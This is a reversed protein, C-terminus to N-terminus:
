EADKKPLGMFIRWEAEHEKLSKKAEEETEFYIGYGAAGTLRWDTKFEHNHASYILYNKYQTGDFWDPEFGNTDDLLTKRAKLWELFQEAEDKTRFCNGVSIDGDTEDQDSNIAARVEGGPMLRYYLERRCPEFATSKGKLKANEKELKAIRRELEDISEQLKATESEAM